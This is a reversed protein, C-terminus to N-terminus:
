HSVMRITLGFRECYVELFNDSLLKALIAFRYSYSQALIFPPHIAPNSSQIGNVIEFIRNPFSPAM